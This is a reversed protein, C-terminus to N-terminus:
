ITLEMIANVIDNDNAKLANVAKSRSCLAQQMVLDIDKAEVGTEDVEEDEEEEVAAVEAKDAAASAASDESVQQVQAQQARMRAAAAMQAQAGMDEVRADGFVVYTNSTASKYVDPRAIAYVIGKPRLLTVRVIGEVPNLGQKTMAKRAKKETRTQPVQPVEMPPIQPVAEQQAEAPTEAQPQEQPIEEIKPQQAATESAM